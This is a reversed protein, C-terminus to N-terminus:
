RVNVLVQESADKAVPSNFVLDFYSNAAPGCFFHVQSSTCVSSCSRCSDYISTLRAPVFRRRNETTMSPNFALICAGKLYHHLHLTGFRVLLGQFIRGWKCMM